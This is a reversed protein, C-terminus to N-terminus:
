RLRPSLPLARVWEPIPPPSPRVIRRGTICDPQLRAWRSDQQEFFSDLEIEECEMERDSAEYALGQVVVSWGTRSGLDFWDAEFTVPETVLLELKTGPATRFVISDRLLAYNIPVLHPAQGSRGVALRGVSQTALLQLCTARDLREIIPREEEVVTV